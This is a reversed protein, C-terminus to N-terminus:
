TNDNASEWEVFNMVHLWPFEADLPLDRLYKRYKILKEKTTENIPYDPVSVATDTDALLQNRTERVLFSKKEVTYKHYVAQEKISTDTEIFEFSYYGECDIYSSKDSIAEVPKFGDLRLQKDNIELGYNLIIGNETELNLPAVSLKGNILKGYTM